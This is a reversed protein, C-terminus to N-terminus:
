ILNGLPHLSAEDQTFKFSSTPLSVFSVGLFLDSHRDEQYLCGLRNLHDNAPDSLSVQTTVKYAVYANM